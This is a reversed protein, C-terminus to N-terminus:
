RVFSFWQANGVIIEVSLGSLHACSSSFPFIIIITSFVGNVSIIGPSNM